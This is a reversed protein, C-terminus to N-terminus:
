NRMLICQLWLWGHAPLPFLGRGERPLRTCWWPRFRCWILGMEERRGGWIQANLIHPSIMRKSHRRVLCNASLVILRKIMVPKAVNWYQFSFFLLFGKTNRGASPYPILKDNQLCKQNLTRKGKHMQPKPYETALPFFQQVKGTQWLTTFSVKSDGKCFSLFRCLFSKLAPSATRSSTCRLCWRAKNKEEWTGM